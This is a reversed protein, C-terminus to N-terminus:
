RMLPRAASPAVMELESEDYWAVTPGLGVGNEWIRDIHGPMHSVSYRGWGTESGDRWSIISGNRNENAEMIIARGWKTKVVDGPIYKTM